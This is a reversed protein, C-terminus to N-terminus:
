RLPTLDARRLTDRRKRGREDYSKQADPFSYRTVGRVRIRDWGDEHAWRHVTGVPVKFFRAMEAATYKETV